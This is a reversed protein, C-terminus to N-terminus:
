IPVQFGVTVASRSSGLSQTSARLLAFPTADGAREALQRGKKRAVPSLLGKLYGLVRRRPEPRRFRGAIRQHLRDIGM